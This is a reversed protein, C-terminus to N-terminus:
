SEDSSINEYYFVKLQVQNKSLDIKGITIRNAKIGTRQYIDDILLGPKQQKILEINDYTITQVQEIRSQKKYDIMFSICLIVTNIGLLFCYDYVDGAGKVKAVASILGIAIVLFLYSMDKIAIEETKYRLMSFVAFLGFAAGMSLDVKNLLFCVLFIVLNITYFTFFLDTKHYVKQYIGRLLIYVTVLDIILRMGLKFVIKQTVEWDTLVLEDPLQLIIDQYHM